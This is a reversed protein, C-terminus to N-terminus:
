ERGALTAVAVIQWGLPSRGLNFRFLWDFVFAVPSSPSGGARAGRTGQPGQAIDALRYLNFFPFGARQAQEVRFGSERLLGSLSDPTFHRLRECRRDFASMPGGPVTVVLRCGPELYPVLGRLLRRPEDNHALVELCVAATAWGRLRPEVESESLLDRQVFTASPVAIRAQEVKERTLEVGVIAAHPYRRRLEAAMVGAGSGVDLIRQERSGDLSRLLELILRQRYAEAPNQANAEALEARHRDWDDPRERV